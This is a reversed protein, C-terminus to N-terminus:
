KCRNYVEIPFLWSVGFDSENDGYLGHEIEPVLYEHGEADTYSLWLTAGVGETGLEVMLVEGEFSTTMDTTLRSEGTAMKRSVPKGLKSLFDVLLKQGEQRIVLTKGTKDAWRGVFNSM